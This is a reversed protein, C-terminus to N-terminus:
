TIIRNLTHGRKVVLREEGNDGLVIGADITGKIYRLICKIGEWHHQEPCSSYQSLTIVAYALDPRTGHMLYLLSGIAAQYCKKEKEDLLTSNSEWELTREKKELM